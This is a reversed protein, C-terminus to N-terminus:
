RCSQVKAAVKAVCDPGVKECVGYQASEGCRAIVGSWGEGQCPKASPCDPLLTAASETEENGDCNFDFGGAGTRPRAFFQKQGPYADPNKDDCDDSGTAWGPQACGTRSAGVGFGDGDEDRRLELTCRAFPVTVRDPGSATVEFPASEGRSIVVRGADLGEVLIRRGPGFPIPPLQVEGSARPAESRVPEMPAPGSAELRVTVVGELPDPTGTQLTVVIPAGDSCASLGTLLLPLTLFGRSVSLSRGAAPLRRRAARTPEPCSTPPM